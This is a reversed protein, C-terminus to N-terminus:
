YGSPGGGNEVVQHLRNSMNNYLKVRSQKPVAVIAEDIAKSFEECTQCSGKANM